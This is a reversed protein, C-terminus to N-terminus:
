REFSWQTGLIVNLPSKNNTAPRTCGTGNKWGDGVFGKPCSCNYSGLLNDCTGNCPKLTECENIDQCGNSNSLYPNGEYGDSCKCIYGSDSTNESDVCESNEKCAFNKTDKAENCSKNGITWDLIVPFEKDQFDYGRLDSNNFKYFGDEAVFAYSCPNDHLVNTHNEYSAVTINYSRVGKPIATQCCGIGSCSGNTVDSINNCLSLCGTAYRQGVGFNGIVTAYTDCGIATFKNRSNNIFFKGSRLWFRWYNAKGYTNYCDYSAEALVRMQGDLSIDVVELNGNALFARNPISSNDCRIFFNETFNCNGGTGFPYPISVNGCHRRCGPKALDAAAEVTAKVMLIVNLSIILEMILVLSRLGMVMKRLNMYLFILAKIYLFKM